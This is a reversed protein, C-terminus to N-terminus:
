IVNSPYLTSMKKFFYTASSRVKNKAMLNIEKSNSFQISKELTSVEISKGSAKLDAM